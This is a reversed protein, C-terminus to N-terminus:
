KGKVKTKKDVKKTSSTNKFAKAEKKVEKKNVVTNKADVKKTTQDAAFSPVVAILAVLVAVIVSKFM